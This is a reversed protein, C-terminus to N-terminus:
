AKGLAAMLGDVLADLSPSAAEFDVPVHLEKMAATTSPGISGSKPRKAGNALKLEAAQDIFSQVASPSAFLVADAGKARFDKAVPDVKLDTEETKYVQLQDVIARAEELKRVLTDRNLNGTIVLVKTSDLGVTSELEAALAEATAKKPQCDVRLWRERVAAATAEGIVAIRLMGLARIDDFLRRFEELFFHVGNASTFVIWDYSGLETLVDALTEKDIERSVEILPLELVDAGLGALQKRWEASSGRPRTIVIRRGALPLASSKAAM